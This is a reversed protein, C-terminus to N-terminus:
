PTTFRVMEGQSLRVTYSGTTAPVFFCSAPDVTLTKGDECLLEGKTGVPALIEAKGDPHATFGGPGSAMEVAFANGTGPFNYYRWGEVTLRGAIVVPTSPQWNSCRLLEEVDCPKPTLGARITNNSPKQVEIMAGRLYAHPTGTLLAIGEGPSLAVLNLLWLFAIGPDGQPFRQALELAWVERKNLSDPAKASLRRYLTRCLSTINDIGRSLVASVLRKVQDAESEASSMLAGNSWAELEPVTTFDQVIERWPRVGCLLEVGGLAISAEVKDIPDPYGKERFLRQADEPGPHVQISLPDAADLFKGLWPLHGSGDLHASLPRLSGQVMVDACGDKHEGFWAEAFPGPFDPPAVAAVPGSRTKVGWAYGKVAPLLPLIGDAKRQM